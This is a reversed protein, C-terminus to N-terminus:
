DEEHWGTSIAKYNSKAGITSFYLHIVLFLSILFGALIHLLDIILFTKGKEILIPNLMLTGTVVVVPMLVYMAALYSVKQLPNFKREKSIAFPKVVGKFIGITYYIFQKKLNELMPKEDPKYYRYNGSILNGVFFVLYNVSLIIGSFNHLKVAIKLSMVAFASYQMQFGSIILVLCLVANLIHWFRLWRPYLYIKDAM